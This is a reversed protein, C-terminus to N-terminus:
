GVDSESMSSSGSSSSYVDKVNCSRCLVGRIEGNSHDHDLHKDYNDKFIKNCYNCCETLLYIDYTDNWDNAVIKLDNKWRSVRKSKLGRETRNFARDYAKKKDSM